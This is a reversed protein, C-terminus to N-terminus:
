APDWRHWRHGESDVAIVDTALLVDGSVTCPQADGHEDSVPPATAEWELDFGLPVREGVGREADAPDEFALAFGELGVTWHEFPTECFLAAWLGSTRIELAHAPPLPVDDDVLVVV